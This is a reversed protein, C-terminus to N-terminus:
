AASRILSLFINELDDAPSEILRVGFGAGVLDAVLQERSDSSLTVLSRAQGVPAELEDHREVSDNAELWTSLETRGGRVTLLVRETRRGLAQLENETGQAVLKGDVLVLIRDCTQSIEGLIHSSLMVARGEGLNRVVKRMEVIQAPDLGSIPEDLILLKPDHIVAMAIGVRKRYGHSLTEIVQHERGKLDALAVVEPLRKHIADTSMGKLRGSHILFSQVTMDRYLPVEEPLFGIRSRLAEPDAVADIGDIQVSGASPVMLGALIKLCTSKGAGNLGLLGVIEGSQVSFSADNLAAFHDYYRTLGSVQIM